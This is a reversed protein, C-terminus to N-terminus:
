ACVFETHFKVRAQDAAGSLFTAQRGAARTRFDRVPRTEGHPASYCFKDASTHHAALILVSAICTANVTRVQQTCCCSPFHPPPPAPTLSSSVADNPVFWLAAQM